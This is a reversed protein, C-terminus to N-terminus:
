RTRTAGSTASVGEEESSEVAGDGDDDFESYLDESDVESPPTWQRGPRYVSPEAGPHRRTQVAIIVIGIVIALLAGWVNDRIGLVTQSPDIRISELWSRGLGYWVLYLGLV